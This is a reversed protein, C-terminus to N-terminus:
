EGSVVLTVTGGPLLRGDANALEAWVRAERTSSEMAREVLTIEAILPQEEVGAPVAWLRLRRDKGGAVVFSGDPAFAACTAAADLGVLRRVETVRQGGARWLQLRGSAGATLILRGDPSFRAVATFGSTRPQNQIVGEPTGGSVGLVQLTNGQDHLVRLGDPSVGLHEVEGSRKDFTAELRGAASGLSWVRLTNDRAASVLQSRPTFELSTVTGRHGPLEYRLTGGAVDWLRITRDEGATACTKGDPSFAVCDLAGEHGGLTRLPETGPKDLDWLAAKGDATGTLCLSGLCALARVPAAHRLLRQQQGTARDWVRVTGDLSASVIRGDRTVAVGTIEELHGVLTQQPGDVPAVEVLAKQGQRLRPLQHTDVLGEARLKTLQQVQVVPDFSHVAEGPRKYVTKIVGTVSSRIQHMRLVTEIQSLEREALTVSERKGMAEFSAKDWDLKASRLNEESTAKGEQRLWRQTEYRSKADDAVKIASELDARTAALRAQKIAHDDRSLQDDLHALLQGAQVIDGEKLRRFRREQNGIRVLVVQDPPVPRNAEIETGLFLLVGDRQSPVDQKEVVTLRCEPVIVPEIRGAQTLPAAPSPIAPAYLAKGLPAVPAQADVVHPVRTAASFFDVKWVVVGSIVAAVAIVIGLRRLM